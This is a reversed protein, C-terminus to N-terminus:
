WGKAYAARRLGSSSSTAAYYWQALASGAGVSRTLASGVPVTVKKKASTSPEVRSARSSPSSQCGTSASRLRRSRSATAAASPLSTSERPSSSKAAKASASVAACAATSAWRFIEAAVVPRRGHPDADPQVGADGGEALVAVDADLDMAREPDGVGAVAALDDRGLGGREHERGVALQAVEAEPRQRLQRLRLPDELEVLRAEAAVERRKRARGPAVGTRTTSASSETSSRSPTARSSSSAPKSTTACDPM